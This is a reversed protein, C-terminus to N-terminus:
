PTAAGAEACAPTQGDSRAVKSHEADGAGPAPYRGRSALRLEQRLELRMAEIRRELERLAADPGDALLEKADLAPGYRVAVRARLLRPFTRHRPWADFAGEVAVPVVPAKARRMLLSTGRKFPQLAGDPSRSGEPFVLLASGAELRELASRIGSADAGTDDLPRAGLGTILWAFFRNKFLGVRALYELPRKVGLGVLPPDFHSQHNAVLIVPGPPLKRHGSMRVRYLLTFAWFVLPRCVHYLARQGPTRDDGNASSNATM